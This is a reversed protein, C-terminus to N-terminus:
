TMMSYSLTQIQPRYIVGIIINRNKNFLDKDIEIFISESLGNNLTIDSRRQYLINSRLFIGVGGGSRETRHTEIFNYGDITYLDSNSDSLWTETIGIVSFQFELNQLCIEFSTLNAKMSRINIHCLSFVNPDIADKFRSQIITSFSHEYYYNCNQYIHANLENFYNADPDVDCLPSYIDDNNLELPNFLKESLSEITKSEIDMNNIESIFINNEEIHNFPFVKSLCKYCYWSNLNLEIYNQDEHNLSICNVHYYYFCIACKVKKAHPLVPRTCLPCNDMELATSFIM